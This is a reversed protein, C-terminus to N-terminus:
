YRGVGGKGKNFLFAGIFLLGVSLAVIAPVWGSLGSTGLQTNLYATNTFGAGTPTTTQSGTLNQCLDTTANYGYLNPCQAVSGGFRTLVVAGVGVIIAFVVIGLGLAQLQQMM